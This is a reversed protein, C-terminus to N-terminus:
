TAKCRGEPFSPRYTEREVIVLSGERSWTTFPREGGVHSADREGCYHAICKRQLLPRYKESREVFVPSLLRDRQRGPPSLDPRTSDPRSGERNTITPVFLAGAGVEPKPCDGSNSLMHLFNVHRACFTLFTALFPEVLVHQSNSFRPGPCTTFPSASYQRPSLGRQDSFSRAPHEWSTVEWGAEQVRCGAGQVRCGAGQVRCGAGQVRCGAGQM